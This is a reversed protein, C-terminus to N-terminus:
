ARGTSPAGKAPLKLEPMPEAAARRHRRLESFDFEFGELSYRDVPAAEVPEERRCLRNFLAFGKRRKRDAIEKRLPFVPVSITMTM